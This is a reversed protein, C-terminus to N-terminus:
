LPIIIIALRVFVVLVLVVDSRLVTVKENFLNANQITITIPMAIATDPKKFKKSQAHTLVAHAHTCLRHKASPINIGTTNDYRTARLLPMPQNMRHIISTSSTINPSTDVSM